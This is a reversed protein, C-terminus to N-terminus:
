RSAVAMGGLNAAMWDLLEKSYQDQVAQETEGVTLGVIMLAVIGEVFHGKSFADEGGKTIFHLAAKKQFAGSLLATLTPAEEPAVFHRKTGKERAVAVDFGLDSFYESRFHLRAKTASLLEVNTITTGDIIKQSFGAARMRNHILHLTKQTAIRLITAQQFQPLQLKLTQVKPSFNKVDEITDFKLKLQM